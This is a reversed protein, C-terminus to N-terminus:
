GTKGYCSWERQKNLQWALATAFIQARADLIGADRYTNWTDNWTRTRYQFLGKYLGSGDVVDSRGESECLMVAYMRDESETYPHKTRAESIWSRYQALTTETPWGPPVSRAPPPIAAEPTSASPMAPPTAACASLALAFASAITKLPYRRPPTTVNQRPWDPGQM